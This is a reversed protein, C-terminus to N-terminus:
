FYTQNVNGHGEPRRGEPLQGSPSKQTQVIQARLSDLRLFAGGALQGFASPRLPSLIYFKDDIDEMKAMKSLLRRKTDSIALEASHATQSSGSHTPPAARSLASRTRRASAFYSRGRLGARGNLARAAVRKNENENKKLNNNQNELSNHPL